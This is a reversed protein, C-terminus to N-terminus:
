AAKRDEQRIWEAAVACSNPAASGCGIEPRLLGCLCSSRLPVSMPKERRDDRRQPERRCWSIQAARAIEIRRTSNM